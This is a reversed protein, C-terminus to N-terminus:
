EYYANREKHWQVYCLWKHSIEKWLNGLRLWKTIWKCQWVKQRTFLDCKETKNQINLLRPNLGPCQLYQASKSNNWIIRFVSFRKYSCAIILLKDSESLFRWKKPLLKCRLYALKGKVSNTECLCSELILRLNSCHKNHSAGEM